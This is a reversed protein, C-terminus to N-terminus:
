EVRVLLRRPRDSPTFRLKLLESGETKAGALKDRSQADKRLLSGGSTSPTVDRVRGGVEVLLIFERGTLEALADDTPTERVEPPEGYGDIANIVLHVSVRQEDVGAAGGAEGGPAAGAQRRTRLAPASPPAAAPANSKDALYGERKEQAQPQSVGLDREVAADLPKPNEQTKAPAENAPASTRPAPVVKAGSDKKATATKEELLYAPLAEPSAPSRAPALRKEERHFLAPAILVVLLAAALVGAWRIDIGFTVGFPRRSPSQERIKRLIRASLDSAPAATPSARFARLSREYEEVAQRCSACSERHAEFERAEAPSLERDHLRSLFEVSAAPHLPESM